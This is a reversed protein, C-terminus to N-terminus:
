VLRRTGNRWRRFGHRTCKLSKSLIRYDSEKVVGNRLTRSEPSSKDVSWGLRDYFRLAAENEVFVTLMVKEIGAKSGIDEVMGMLVKGLGCGRLGESIHIEYIYIVEFGDEYTFMFSLFAEVAPSSSITLRVLIYRLDPLRMENRKKTPHWGLSSAAYASASTISILDFCSNLETPSLNQSTVITTSYELSTKPNTFLQPPSAYTEVFASIPLANIRDVLTLNNKKSRLVVM